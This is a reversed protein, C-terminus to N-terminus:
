FPIDDEIAIKGNSFAILATNVIAARATSRDVATAPAGESPGDDKYGDPELECALKHAHRAVMAYDAWQVAHGNGNGNGAAAGDLVKVIKAIKYKNGRGSTKEEVTIEVAKGTYQTGDENLYYIDNGHHIKCSPGYQGQKVDTVKDITIQM